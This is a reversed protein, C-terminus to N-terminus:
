LHCAAITLGLVQLTEELEQQLRTTDIKREGAEHQVFTQIGSLILDKAHQRIQGADCGLLRTAANDLLDPTTGIMVTYTLPVSSVDSESLASLDEQDLTVQVPELSLWAHSHIAPIVVAVGGQVVRKVGKLNSILLVKNPPCKKMFRMMFMMLGFLVLLNVLAIMVIIMPMPEYAM